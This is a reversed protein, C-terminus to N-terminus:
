FEREDAASAAASPSGALGQERVGVELQDRRRVQEFVAESRRKAAQLGLVPILDVNRGLAPKESELAVLLRDRKRVHHNQRRRASETWRMELLRHAQPFVSKQFLRNCDVRGPYPPHELGRLLRPLFFQLDRHAELATM